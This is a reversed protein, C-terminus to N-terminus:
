TRVCAWMQAEGLIEHSNGFKGLHQLVEGGCFLLNEFSMGVISGAATSIPLGSRLPEVRTFRLTLLAHSWQWRIRVLHLPCAGHERQIPVYLLCQAM